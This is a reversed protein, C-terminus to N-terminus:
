EAPFMGGNSDVENGNKKEKKNGWWIVFRVIGITYLILIALIIVNWVIMNLIWM